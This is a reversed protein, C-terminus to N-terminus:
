FCQWCRFRGAPALRAVGGGWGAGWVCTDDGVTRKAGHTSLSEAPRQSRRTARRCWWQRFRGAAGFRVGNAPCSRAEGRRACAPRGGGTHPSNVGCPRVRPAVIAGAACRRSVTKIVVPPAAVSASTVAAGAAASRGPVPQPPECMPLTLLRRLLLKVPPVLCLWPMPGIYVVVQIVQIPGFNLAALCVSLNSQWQKLPHM